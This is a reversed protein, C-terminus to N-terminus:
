MWDAPALELEFPESVTLREGPRITRVEDWSGDPRPRTYVHTTGDREIRWYADIGRRAYLESKIKRDRHKTTVSEVEVVLRLAAEGWQQEVDPLEADTVALDPILHADGIVFGANTYTAWGDPLARLIALHMRRIRNEHSWTPPPDVVLEGGLIEYRYRDDPAAAIVERLEALDDQMGSDSLYYDVPQASMTADGEQAPDDERNSM